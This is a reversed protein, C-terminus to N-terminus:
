RSPKVSMQLEGVLADTQPDRVPVFINVTAPATGGNNTIIKCFADAQAVFAARHGATFEVGQAAYMDRAYVTVPKTATNMM